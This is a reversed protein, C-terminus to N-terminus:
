PRKAAHILNRDRNENGHFVLDGIDAIAQASKGKRVFNHHDVGRTGISRHDYRFFHARPNHLEAPISFKGALFVPRKLVDRPPVLPHEDDVRVLADRRRQRPLDALGNLSRAEISKKEIAPEPKEVSPDAMAAIKRTPVQTQEPVPEPAVLFDLHRRPVMGRAVIFHMLVHQEFSAAIIQTRRHIMEGKRSVRDPDLFVVAVAVPLRDDRVVQVLVAPDIRQRVRRKTRWKRAFAPELADGAPQRPPGPQAEQIM